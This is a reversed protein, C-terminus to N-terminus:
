VGFLRIVEEYDVPILIQDGPKVHSETPTSNFLAIVWWYRSDGYNEYALKYFRDGTKWIYIMSRVDDKDSQSVQNYAPSALQVFGKVNKKDFFEDYLKNDNYIKERSRNRKFAM